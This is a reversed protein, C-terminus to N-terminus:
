TRVATLRFIALSRPYPRMPTYRRKLPAFQKWWWPSSSPLWILVCLHEDSQFHVAKRVAPETPEPRQTICYLVYNAQRGHSLTPSDSKMVALYSQIKGMGKKKCLGSTKFCIAASICISIICLLLLFVLQMPLAESHPSFYFTPQTTSSNSSFM